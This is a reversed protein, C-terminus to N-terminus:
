CFCDNVMIAITQFMENLEINILGAWLFLAKFKQCAYWNYQALRYTNTFRIPCHYMVLFYLNNITQLALKWYHIRQLGTYVNFITYVWRSCLYLLCFMYLINYTATHLTNYTYNVSGITYYRHRSSCEQLCIFMITTYTMYIAKPLSM